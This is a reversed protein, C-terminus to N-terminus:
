DGDPGNSSEPESTMEAILKLAARHRHAKAEKDLDCFRIAHTPCGTVCAPDEGQETRRICLDCKVAVSGCHSMRMIGFPCAVICCHCGICLDATILVPGDADPRGIADVPCVKMCPADECHHCQMPIARDGAAEVDVRSTLPKGAAFADAVTEFDSHALACETVCQKCALCRTEDVVIFKPM